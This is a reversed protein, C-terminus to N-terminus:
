EFLGPPVISVKPKDSAEASSGQTTPAAAPPVNDVETPRSDIKPQHSDRKEASKTAPSGSGESTAAERPAPPPLPPTSRLKTAAAERETSVSKAKPKTGAPAEGAGYPSIAAPIHVTAPGGYSKKVAPATAPLGSFGPSWPPEVGPPPPEGFAEARAALAPGRMRGPAVFRELIQGSGADIVLRQYGSPGASVDALYIGPRRVLPAILGYGQAELSREIEGPSAARWPPLWQATAAAVFAFAILGGLASSALCLRLARNMRTTMIQRELTEGEVIQPASYPATVADSRGIGPRHRL